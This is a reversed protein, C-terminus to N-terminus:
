TQEVKTEEESDDLPPANPQETETAEALHRAITALV